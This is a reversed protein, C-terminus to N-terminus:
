KNLISQRKAVWPEFSDDMVSMANAAATASGASAALSLHDRAAAMPNDAEAAALSLPDFPAEEMGDSLPDFM